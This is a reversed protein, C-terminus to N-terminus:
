LFVTQVVVPQHFLGNLAQDDFLFAEAKLVLGGLGPPVQVSITWRGDTGVFSGPLAPGLIGPDALPVVAAPWLQTFGFAGLSAPASVTAVGVFIASGPKGVATLEYIGGPAATAPATLSATWLALCPPLLSDHVVIPTPQISGGPLIAPSYAGPLRTTLQVSGGPLASIPASIAAVDGAIIRVVAGPNAGDSPLVPAEVAVRCGAFLVASPAAAAFAQYTVPGELKLRGGAVCLIFTDAAPVFQAVSEMTACALDRGATALIRGPRTSGSTRIPGLEADRWASITVDGGLGINPLENATTRIWSTRVDGAASSVAVDGAIYGDAYIPGVDVDAGASLAAGGAIVAGDFTDDGGRVDITGVIELAEGAVVTVYGGRGAFGFGPRGKADIGGSVHVSGSAQVYISSPFYGGTALLQTFSADGGATAFVDGAIGFCPSGSVDISASVALEGGSVLSVDGGGGWGSYGLACGSGGRAEIPATLSIAGDATVSVAGGADGVTRLARGCVVSSGGQATLALSGGTQGDEFSGADIPEAGADITLGGDAELEIEGGHRGPGASPRARLVASGAVLLAGDAHVEIEGGHGAAAGSADITGAIVVDGDAFPGGGTTAHLEVSGTLVAGASVTIRGARLEAGDALIAASATFVVHRSGFDFPTAGVPQLTWAGTIVVPDAPGFAAASGATQAALGAATWAAAFLIAALSPTEARRGSLSARLSLHM